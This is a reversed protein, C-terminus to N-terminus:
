SISLMTNYGLYNKGLVIAPEVKTQFKTIIKRNSFVFYELIMTIITQHKIITKYDLEEEVIMTAAIDEFECVTPGQTGFDHGLVGQGLAYFPSTYHTHKVYELKIYYGLIRKLLLELESINEKFKESDCLNLFLKYYQEKTLPIDKAIIKKSLNFLIKKSNEDTFINLYRNTLRVKKEFLQTDFPIFFHINDEELKKNKKIAEVIEANTMLPNSLVLPHFFTEPLHHYISNRSLHIFIAQKNDDNIVYYYSSIDIVDKSFARSNMGHNKIWFKKNKTDGILGLMEGYFIEGVFNLTESRKIEELQDM